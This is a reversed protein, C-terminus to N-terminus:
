LSCVLKKLSKGLQNYVIKGSTTDLAALRYSSWGWLRNKYSQYHKSKRILTQVDTEISDALIVLTVDSCRHDPNPDVRSIGREWAERDLEEFLASDLVPVSAFFVYEHCDESSLKASRFLFYHEGHTHFEAQAAFPGEVDETKLDYYRQYSLLLKDLAEKRRTMVEEM